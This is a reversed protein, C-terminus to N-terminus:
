ESRWQWGAETVLDQVPMDYGDTPVEDLVQDSWGVGIRRAHTAMAFFRDYYGRGRGLRMKKQRGFALAPTLIVSVEESAVPVSEPTPLLVGHSGVVLETESQVVRATLADGDVSMFAAQVGRVQLWQILPILDPEGQLGGFLTVVGGPAPVWREDRMLAALLRQSRVMVESETLAALRAKCIVRLASKENRAKNFKVCDAYKVRSGGFLDLASGITADMRGQSLTQITWLDDLRNIGGAYTLPRKGWAGLFRALPQDIGECKGEVDVAHVLFEACYEALADLTREDVHLDTLTQWRNMAVKWGDAGAKCSLDLVLRERGVEAVIERLKSEQFRGQADFVASTVIVHSAGRELWMAANEAHVGGGVQLGGPFAALAETAAAENGKGLLIVHGGHLDDAAYREAFWAAPRDSVFNEKPGSAEDSLTSGVIQKVRGDHLDICPRFRTMGM